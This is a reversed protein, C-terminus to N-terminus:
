KAVTICFLLYQGSSAASIIAFGSEVYESSCHTRPALHVARTGPQPKIGAFQLESASQCKLTNASMVGLSAQIKAVSSKPWTIEPNSSRDVSRGCAVPLRRPVPRVCSRDNRSNASDTVKTPCGLSTSDSPSGSPLSYSSQDHLMFSIHTTQSTPARILDKASGTLCVHEEFQVTINKVYSGSVRSCHDATDTLAVHDESTQWAM